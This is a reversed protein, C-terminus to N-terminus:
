DEDEDTYGCYPKSFNRLLDYIYIYIYTMKFFIIFIFIRALQAPGVRVWIPQLGIRVPDVPESELRSALKM